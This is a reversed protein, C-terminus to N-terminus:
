RLGRATLYSFSDAIGQLIDGRYSDFEVVALEASSAAELAADLVVDGQGAPVQDEMSGALAGDKVHVFRVRDGLRLLVPVIDAGGVAAWYLDVELVVEPVLLGAFYELAHEGDIRAELEHGHNHYGITM